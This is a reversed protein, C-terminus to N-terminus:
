AATKKKRVPAPYTIAQKPIRLQEAILDAINGDPSRDGREINALYATSIGVSKALDIARVGNAQRIARM